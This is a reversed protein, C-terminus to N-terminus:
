TAAQLSAAFQRRAWGIGYTSWNPSQMLRTLCAGFFTELLDNQKASAAAAITQPGVAGDATVVLARQLAMVAQVPGDLVAFALLPTALYTPLQDAGKPWYQEVFIQAAQPQTVNAIVLGPHNRASVGWATEGGPDNPDNHYPGERGTIWLAAATIDGLTM